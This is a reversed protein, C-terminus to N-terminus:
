EDSGVSADGAQEPVIAGALRGRQTDETRHDARIFTTCQDVAVIARCLREFDPTREAHQRMGAAQIRMEGATFVDLVVGAQVAGFRKKLGEVKIM